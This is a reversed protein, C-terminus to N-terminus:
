LMSMIFSLSTFFNYIEVFFNYTRGIEVYGVRSRKLLEENKTEVAGSFHGFVREMGNDGVARLLASSCKWFRTLSMGYNSREGLARLRPNKEKGAANADTWKFFGDRQDGRRGDGAAWALLNRTIVFFKGKTEGTRSFCKRTVCYSGACLSVISRSACGKGTLLGLMVTAVTVPSTAM